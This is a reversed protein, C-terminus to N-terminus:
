RNVVQDIIKKIYENSYAYLGVRNAARVNESRDDFFIIEKPGVKNTIYTKFDEYFKLQPKYHREIENPIFYDVFCMDLQPHKKRLEELATPWINSLAFIQYGDSKLKKICEIISQDLKQTTLIKLVIKKLPALIPFRKILMDCEYETNLQKRIISFLLPWFLPNLMIFAFRTHTFEKWIFAVVEGLKVSCIVGNIDFAFIASDPTITPLQKVAENSMKLAFILIILAGSTLIILFLNM